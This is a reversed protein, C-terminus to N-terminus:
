REKSHYGKTNFSKEKYGKLNKDKIEKIFLLYNDYRSKLIEGSEVKEKVICGPENLHLCGNYKCKVEFFEKFNQSLSVEDMELDLTGFGPTDAILGDCTKILETHRTTHKGRGLAKSIEGTKINLDTVLNLFTSKGVGSQGCLVSVSNKIEQKIENIDNPLLFVKYGIKKYYNLINEYKNFESILDIKSFLLIPEINNYETNIILRDLLNLNLDPEVISTVIFAKDVNSVFPRILDNKRESISIISNDEVEVNDGVKPTIKKLRFIGIPKCTRIENNSLLCDYEGSISKIILGKM